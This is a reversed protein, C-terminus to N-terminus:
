WRNVHRPRATRIVVGQPPCDGYQLLQGCAPATLNM